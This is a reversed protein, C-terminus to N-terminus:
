AEETRPETRKPDVAASRRKAAGPDERASSAGDGLSAGAEARDTQGASV